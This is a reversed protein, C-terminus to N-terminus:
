FFFIAKSFPQVKKGSVEQDIREKDIERRRENLVCFQLETVSKVFYKSLDIWVQNIIWKCEM